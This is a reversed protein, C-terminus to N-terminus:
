GEWRMGAGDAWEGSAILYHLISPDAKSLFEEVFEEDEEEVLKKCKAILSDLTDNVVKLAEVCRKQRPVLQKAGAYLTHQTLSHFTLPNTLPCSHQQGCKPHRYAVTTAYCWSSPAKVCLTDGRLSTVYTSASRIKAVSCM